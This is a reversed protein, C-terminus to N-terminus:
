KEKFQNLWEIAKDEDSFIRTPSHNKNFRMFFNSILMVPLSVGSLIAMALSLEGVEKSYSYAQAEKTVQWVKRNDVLVLMPKGQQIVKRADVTEVVGELDVNADKKLILYLIDDKIELTAILTEIITSTNM